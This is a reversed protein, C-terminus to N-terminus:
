GRVYVVAPLGAHRDGEIYELFRVGIKTASAIEQLSVGREERAKRLSEGTVPEPLIRPLAPIAARSAPALQRSRFAPPAAPKPAAMKFVPRPGAAPKAEPAPGSSLAALGVDYERRRLPDKLVEYALRVRERAERLEEPELLSYIAVAREEYMAAFFQYAREVQEPTAARALDLAEYHDAGPGHTVM